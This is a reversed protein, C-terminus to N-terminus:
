NFLGSISSILSSLFEIAVIAFVITLLVAVIMATSGSSPRVRRVPGAAAPPRRRPARIQPMRIQSVGFRPRPVRINRLASARGRQKPMIGLPPEPDVAGPIGRPASDVPAQQGTRESSREAMAEDVLQQVKQPDTRVPSAVKTLKFDDHEDADDLSGSLADGFAVPPLESQTGDGFEGEDRAPM